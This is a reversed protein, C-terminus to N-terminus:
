IRVGISKFHPIPSRTFDAISVIEYESGDVVIYDAPKGQQGRPELKVESFIVITDQADAGEPLLSLERSVDIPQINAVISIDTVLGEQFAGFDTKVSDFKRKVPYRSSYFIM